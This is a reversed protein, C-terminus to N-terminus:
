VILEAKRYNFLTDLCGFMMLLTTPAIILVVLIVYGVVKFGRNIPARKLLVIISLIGMIKMLTELFFFVNLSFISLVANADQSFVAMMIAVFFILVTVRSLRFNFLQKLSNIKQSKERLM